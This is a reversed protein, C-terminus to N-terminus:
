HRHTLYELYVLCNKLNHPKPENRLMELDIALSIAKNLSVYHQVVSNNHMNHAKLSSHFTM